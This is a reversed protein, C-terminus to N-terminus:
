TERSCVIPNNSLWNIAVAENSREIVNNSYIQLVIEIVTSSSQFQESVARFSSQFLLLATSYISLHSPCGHSVLRGHTSISNFNFWHHSRGPGASAPTGILEIPKRRINRTDHFQHHNFTWQDSWCSYCYFCILVSTDFTLFLVSCFLVYNGMPRQLQEDDIWWEHLYNCWTSM